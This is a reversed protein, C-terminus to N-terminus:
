KPISFLNPRPSPNSTANARKPELEANATHTSKVSFLTPTNSLASIPGADSREQEDAAQSFNALISELSPQTDQPASFLSFVNQRKDKNDIAKTM